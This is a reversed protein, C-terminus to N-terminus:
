KKIRLCHELLNFYNFAIMHLILDEESLEMRM